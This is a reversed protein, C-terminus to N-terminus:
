NASGSWIGSTITLSGTYGPYNPKMGINKTENSEPDYVKLYPKKDLGFTQLVVEPKSDFDVDSLTMRNEQGNNKRPVFNPTLIKQGYKDLFLIHPTGKKPVAVIEPVSGENISTAKIFVPLRASKGYPHFGTTFKQQGKKDFIRIQGTNSATIIEAKGNNDMDAATVETGGVYDNATDNSGGFAYFNADTTQRISKRVTGTDLTEEQYKFALVHSKGGEKPVTIIEGKDDGNIDAVALNLGTRLSDDQYVNKAVALFEFEYKEPAEGGAPEYRFVYLDSSKGAGPSVVIEDRGDGTLDGATMSLGQKGAPGFIFNPTVIRKGDYRFGLIHSNFGPDPVTLIHPFNLIVDKYYVASLQGYRNRSAFRIKTNEGINLEKPDTLTQAKALFDKSLGDGDKQAETMSFSLPSDNDTTYLIVEDSEATTFSFDQPGYCQKTDPYHCNPVIGTNPLYYNEQGSSLAEGVSNYAVWKITTTGKQSISFPGSYLTSSQGPNTGDSTYRIEDIDSSDGDDPTITVQISDESTKSPPNITASDSSADQMVTFSWNSTTSVADNSEVTAQVAVSAGYSFDTEPNVTVDYGLSGDETFTCSYGSQCSGDVVANSSAISVQLTNLNIGSTPADAEFTVNANRAVGTAGDAPFQASFTPTVPEDGIIFGWTDSGSVGNSASAEVVVVEEYSYPTSKSIYVDYGTGNPTFICSFGAQCGGSSVATAGAIVTEITGLDVQTTSQIEYYVIAENFVDTEGDAPNKNAFIPPDADEGGAWVTTASAGDQGITAANVYSNYYSLAGVGVNATGTGFGAGEPAEPDLSDYPDIRNWALGDTTEWVQAGTTWNNTGAFLSTGYSLMSPISDNYNDGYFGPTNSATWSAEDYTWIEAGDTGNSTGAFIKELIGDDFVVLSTVQSNNANGFGANGLTTDTWSAGDYSWVQGGDFNYTGVYLNSNYVGMSLAESNNSDGFGADGVKTWDSTTPGDYRWVECGTAWNGTGAYLKSDYVALANISSNTGGFGDVNIQTWTSGDFRWVEGNEDSFRWTGAYLYTDDSVLSYIGTNGADGFGDTGSQTWTSGDYVWVEGGTNTNKTGIYLNGDYQAVAKSEANSSDGFGDTNIQTWSYDAKALETSLFFSGILFVTLFTIVKLGVKASWNTKIM